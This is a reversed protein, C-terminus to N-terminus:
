GGRWRLAISASFTSEAQNHTQLLDRRADLDDRGIRREINRLLRHFDTLDIERNAQESAQAGVKELLPEKGFRVHDQHPVIM